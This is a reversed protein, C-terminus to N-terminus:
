HYPHEGKNECTGESIGNCATKSDGNTPCCYAIVYHRASTGEREETAFCCTEDLDCEYYERDGDGSVIVSCPKSSGSGSGSGNDQANALIAGTAFLLSAAKLAGESILPQPSWGVGNTAAAERQAAKIDAEQSLISFFRKTKRGAQRSQAALFKLYPLIHGFSTRRKRMSDINGIM